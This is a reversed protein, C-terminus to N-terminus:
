ARPQRRPRRSARSVASRSRSCRRARPGPALVYAQYGEGRTAGHHRGRQSRACCEGAGGLWKTGVPGLSPTDPKKEAPAAEAKTAKDTAPAASKSAPAAAAAAPPAHRGAHRSSRRSRRDAPPPPEVAPTPSESGGPKAPAPNVAAPPPAETAPPRHRPAAADVVAEPGREARVGRGVMVGCLFIVVSVVTAAMFLFVLQKGNLQIEHFGEDSM